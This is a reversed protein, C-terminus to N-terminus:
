FLYNAGQMGSFDEQYVEEMGTIRLVETYTLESPIDHFSSATNKAM